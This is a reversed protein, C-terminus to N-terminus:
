NENTALLRRPAGALASSFALGAIALLVVNGAVIFRALDPTRQALVLMAAVVISAYGAFATFVAQALGSAGPVFTSRRALDPLLFGLACALLAAGIAAAVGLVLCAALPAVGHLRLIAAVTAIWLTHAVAHAVCFSVVGATKWALLRRPDVLPRLLALQNGERGLCPLGHLFALASAVVCVVLAVVAGGSWAPLQGQEVLHRAIVLVGLSSSALLGHRVVYGRPNRLSPSVLDKMAFLRVGDRHRLSGDPRPSAVLGTFLSRFRRASAGPARDESLEAILFAASRRVHVALLLVSALLLSVVALSGVLDAASLRHSALLPLDLAGLVEIAAPPLPAIQQDSVWIGAPMGVMFAVMAFSLGQYLANASTATRAVALLRPFLVVTVLAAAYGALLQALVHVAITVPQGPFRHVLVRTFFMYHIGTMGLVIPLTSDALLRSALLAPLFGPAAQLPQRTRQVVHDRLLMATVGAVIALLLALEGLALAADAQLPAMRDHASPTFVLRRVSVAAFAATVLVMAGHASRLLRHTTERRLALFRYRLILSHASM